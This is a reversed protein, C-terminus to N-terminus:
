RGLGPPRFNRGNPGALASKRRAKSVATSRAKHARHQPAALHRHPRLHYGSRKLQGRRACALLWSCTCCFKGEPAECSHLLPSAAKIRNAVARPHTSCAGHQLKSNSSASAYKTRFTQMIHLALQVSGYTHLHATGVGNKWGRNVSSKCMSIRLRVGYVFETKDHSLCSSKLEEIM